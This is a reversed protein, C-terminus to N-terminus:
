GYANRLRNGGISCIAWFVLHGNGFIWNFNEDIIKNSQLLRRMAEFNGEIDSFVFLKEPKIYESPEFELKSKLKVQFSKDKRDSQVNILCEKAKTVQQCSVNNNKISYVSLSDNTHFVYPGDNILAHREKVIDFVHENVLNILARGTDKLLESVQQEFIRGDKNLLYIKPVKNVFYTKFVPNDTRKNGAFLNTIDKNVLQGQTIYKIWQEKRKEGSIGLIVVNSDQKFAEQIKGLISNIEICEKCGSNWFYLLAVKGKINNDSFSNGQSDILTFDPARQGERFSLANVYDRMWKKYKVFGPQRYYDALVSDTRPENFGTKRVIEYAVIYQLLRERILGNFNHKITNYYLINKDIRNYLSDFKYSFGNEKLVLLKNYSDFYWIMNCYDSHLRLWKAWRGNLTSDYISAMDSPSIEIKKTSNTFIAWFARARLYEIDYIAKAKILLYAYESVKNKYSDIYPIILDLQKNLYKNFTLYDVLSNIYHVNKIPNILRKREMDIHHQLSFGEAGKGLFTFGDESKIHISDGPQVIAPYGWFPSMILLPKDSLLVWKVKGDLTKEKVYNWTPFFEMNNLEIMRIEVSDNMRSNPLIRSNYDHPVNGEIIIRNVGGSNPFQSNSKFYNGTLLIFFSAIKYIKKL